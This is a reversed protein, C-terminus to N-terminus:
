FKMLPPSPLPIRGSNAVPKPKNNHLSILKCDTVKFILHEFIVVLDLIENHLGISKLHCWTEHFRLRQQNAKCNLENELLLEINKMVKHQLM